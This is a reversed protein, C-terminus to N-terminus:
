LILLYQFKMNLSINYFPQGRSRTFTAWMILLTLSFMYLASSSINMMLFLCTLM